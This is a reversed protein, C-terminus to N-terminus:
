SWWGKWARRRAHPDRPWGEHLQVLATRRHDTEIQNDSAPWELKVREEAERRQELEHEREARELLEWGSDIQDWAGDALASLMKMRGAEAKRREGPAISGSGGMRRLSALEGISGRDRKPVRLLEVLPVRGEQADWHGIRPDIGRWLGRVLRWHRQLRINPYGTALKMVPPDLMWGDNEAAGRWEQMRGPLWSAFQMLAAPPVHAVIDTYTGGARAEHVYLWHARYGRVWRKVQVDLEHTLRSVLGGAALEDGAGLRAHDLTIRTNLLLGHQQILFSAQAYIAEAQKLDLYEAPDALATTSRHMVRLTTSRSRYARARERTAEPATTPDSPGEPNVLRHFRRSRILLNTHDRMTEIPVAWVDMLDLWYDGANRRASRARAKFGAAVREREAATVQYFAPNVIHNRAPVTVEFNSLYLLFDRIMRAKEPTEEQWDSLATEQANVDGTLVADFYALVFATSGFALTEAALTPTVDGQWAIQDLKNLAERASGDSASGIMDLAQPEYRISESQCVDRLLKFMQTGGLPKFHVILCRKRLAPRVAALDTTACIFNAGEGPEEAPKLLVDAAAGSLAHIEDLFCVFKGFHPRQVLRAFDQVHRPENHRAGDMEYWGFTVSRGGFINECSTCRGCPLPATNECLIGAGMVRAASTKGTGSPGVLLVSQNSGTTMHHTLAGVAAEQGIIDSLKRPRYKLALDRM